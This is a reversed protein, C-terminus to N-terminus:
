LPVSGQRKEFIARARNASPSVQPTAVGKKEPKKLYGVLPNYEATFIVMRRWLWNPMDGFNFRILAGSFGKAMLQSNIQSNKFCAQVPGLREAQYDKFMTTIEEIFTSPLGYILNALVVADHIANMAGDSLLVTRGSYWTTFVKEELKVKPIFDKDTRDFMDGMTLTKGDGMPLVFDRTEDFM